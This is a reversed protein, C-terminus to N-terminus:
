RYIIKTVKRTHTNGRERERERERKMVEKMVKGKKM